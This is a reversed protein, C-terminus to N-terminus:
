LLLDTPILRETLELTGVRGGCRVSNGLLTSWQANPIGDSSAQAGSSANPPLTPPNPLSLQAWTHTAVTSLMLCKWLRSM